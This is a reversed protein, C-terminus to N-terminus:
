LTMSHHIPAVVREWVQLSKKQSLLSIVIHTHPSITGHRGMRHARCGSAMAKWHQCEHRRKWEPNAGTEREKQCAQIGGFQSQEVASWHLLTGKEPSTERETERLVAAHKPINYVAGLHMKFLRPMPGKQLARLGERCQWLCGSYRAQM